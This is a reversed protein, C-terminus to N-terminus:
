RRRGSKKGAVFAKYEDYSRIYDHSDYKDSTYVALIADRSFEYQIGWIGAPIYLGIHPKDLRVQRATILNDVVVSLAGQIAVLLQHCKKHAHEGRVKYGPVNFVFFQRRPVFPLGAEFEVPVLDGRLDRFRPLPWIKCNGVGITAPKRESARAYDGPHTASSKKGTHVYGSIRAPNGVVIANPPINRTVVAGAGVMARSGIRLGPLITANAGISAGDELVTELFKDPYQKSRPFADNTFTANPGIFVDDGIRIGDWIQVGNKITVRNGIVVENEIFVHECINCDCGIKAGALVHSFAWIRTGEGIVGSECIGQPHIFCQKPM